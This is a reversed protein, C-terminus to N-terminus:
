LFHALCPAARDIPLTEQKPIYAWRNDQDENYQMDLAAERLLNLEELSVFEVASSSPAHDDARRKKSKVKDGNKSVTKLPISSSSTPHPPPISQAASDSGLQPVEKGSIFNTRKWVSICDRSDPYRLSLEALLLCHFSEALSVQFEASSTRGFPAVPAGAATGTFMMEGIHIIHEGTFNELCQIAMSESEDPYCLLLNRGGAVPKTLVEPGGRKVESWSTGDKKDSFKDFALINVNNQRLLSAWFGKGAGIEILPSFNKIIRLCREDPIAWAYRRCLEYSKGDLDEWVANRKAEFEPNFFDDWYKIGKRLDAVAEIYPNNDDEAKSVSTKQVKEKKAKSNMAM